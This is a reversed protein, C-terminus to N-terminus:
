HYNTPLLFAIKHLNMQFQMKYHLQYYLIHGLYDLLINNLHHDQQYQLVMRNNSIIFFTIFVKIDILSFKKLSASKSFYNFKEFSVFRHPFLIGFLTHDPLTTKALLTSSSDSNFLRNKFLTLSVM